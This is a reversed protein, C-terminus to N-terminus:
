AEYETPDVLRGGETGAAMRWEDAYYVYSPVTSANSLYNAKYINLHVFTPAYPGTISGGNRGWTSTPANVIDVIQEYGGGDKQLWIQCVGTDEGTMIYRIVWDLWVDRPLEADTAQWIPVRTNSVGMQGTAMSVSWVGPFDKSEGFECPPSTGTTVDNGAVNQGGGSIQWLITQQNTLTEMQYSSPICMSGGFWNETGTPYNIYPNGNLAARPKLPALAAWDSRQLFFRACHTGNRAAGPPPNTVLTYANGAPDGPPLVSTTNLRGGAFDETVTLTATGVPPFVYGIPDPVPVSAGQAVVITANPRELYYTGDPLKSAKEMAEVESSSKSVNPVDIGAYDTLTMLPRTIEIM